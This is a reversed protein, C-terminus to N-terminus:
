LDVVDFRLLLDLVTSFKTGLAVSLELVTVGVVYTSPAWYCDMAVMFAYLVLYSLLTGILCLVLWAVKLGFPLMQAPFLCVPAPRGPHALALERLVECFVEPAFTAPM